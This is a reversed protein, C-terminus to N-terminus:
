IRDTAGIFEPDAKIYKYAVARENCGDPFEKDTWSFSRIIAPQIKPYSMRQKENKWGAVWVEARNELYNIDIRIVKWYLAEFGYQTQIEKEIAM